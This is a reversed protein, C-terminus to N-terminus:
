SPTVVVTGTMNKPHIDCRFYYTGPGPATFRYDATTPGLVVDGTFGRRTYDPDDFIAVNHLTGADENHFKIEAPLEGKLSIEKQVFATGKAVVKVAKTAGEHRHIERQGVSAAVIGGGSLVVGSAALIAVLTRSSLNPRLTVLSASALIVVAVVLAIGTSAQEPVALLVRSMFFVLSFIAFLGVAPLGLPLLNLERGTHDASISTMWGVATAAGVVLGAVTAVPGVVFGVLVLALALAGTFSWLGGSVPRGPAVDALEPPPADAPVPAAVLNQRHANVVTGAFAAAVVLGLLLLVGDRDGTSIGYAVAAVFALVSIPLYVKASQTLM